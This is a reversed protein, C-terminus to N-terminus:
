STSFILTTIWRTSEIRITISSTLSSPKPRTLIQPSNAPTDPSLWPSVGKSHYHLLARQTKLFVSDPYIRELDAMQGHVQETSQYLEQSVYVRFIYTM